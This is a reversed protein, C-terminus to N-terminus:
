DRLNGDKVKRNYYDCLYSIICQDCLPNRKCIKQGHQLMTIHLDYCLQYDGKLLENLEKQGRVRDQKKENTGEIVGLRQSVRLCHADAPFVARKMTYLMICYASKDKIGPLSILYQYVDEDSKKFLTEVKEVCGIDEEIKRLLKVLTRAKDNAKGGSEIRKYWDNESLEFLDNWNQFETKLEQYFLEAKSIPTRWSLFIYLIEDFIKDKNYFNFESYIRKLKNRVKKLKTKKRM